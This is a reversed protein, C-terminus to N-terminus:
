ISTLSLATNSTFSLDNIDLLDGQCSPKVELLVLQTLGSKHWLLLTLEAPKVQCWASDNFLNSQHWCRKINSTLSLNNIDLLDGQCSTKVELLVLHTLGGKLLLFIEKFTGVHQLVIWLLFYMSSPLSLGMKDTWIYLRHLFSEKAGIKNSRLHQFHMKPWILNCKVIFSHAWSFITYLYRCGVIIHKEEVPSLSM